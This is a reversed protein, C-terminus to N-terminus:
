APRAPPGPTRDQARLAAPAHERAVTVPDLREVVPGHFARELEGGLHARQWAPLDVQVRELREEGEVGDGRRVRDEAVDALEGGSVQEHPLLASLRADLAVRVGPRHLL